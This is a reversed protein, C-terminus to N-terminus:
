HQKCRNSCTHGEFQCVRGPKAPECSFSLTGLYLDRYISPPELWNGTSVYLNFSFFIFSGWDIFFFYQYFLGSLKELYRAVLFFAATAEKFKM